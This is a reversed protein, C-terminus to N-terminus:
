ICDGLSMGAGLLMGFELHEGAEGWVTSGVLSWTNQYALRCPVNRMQIIMSSKYFVHTQNVDDMDPPECNDTVEAGPSARAEM